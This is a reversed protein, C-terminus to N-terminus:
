DGKSCKVCYSLKLKLMNKRATQIQKPHSAGTAAQADPQNQRLSPQILTIQLATYSHPPVPLMGLKLRVTCSPCEMRRRIKAQALSFHTCPGFPAFACVSRTQKSCYSFWYLQSQQLGEEPNVLNYMQTIKGREPQFLGKKLM